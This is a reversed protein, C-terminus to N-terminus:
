LIDYGFELIFFRKIGGYKTGMTVNIYDSYFTFKRPIDYYHNVEKIKVGDFQTKFIGLVSELSISNIDSKNSELYFILNRPNKFFSSGINEEYYNVFEPFPLDVYKIIYNRIGVKANSKRFFSLM